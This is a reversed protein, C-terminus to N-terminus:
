FKKNIGYLCLKLISPYKSIKEMVLLYDKSIIFCNHSSKNLNFPLCKGDIKIPFLYSKFILLFTDYSSAFARASKQPM